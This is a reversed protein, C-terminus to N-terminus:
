NASAGMTMPRLGLDAFLAADESEEPNPTTLLVNGVFISNAGAMFCLAQLEQSMHERGASLRVMAKPCVIRAVAIMRVFEIPGVSESQGLPTGAVPMLDNIPLSDPHHPLTALAHLLGARDRRTEGMSVIGGCCTNMGAAKVHALTDLRDQYTRTTVVKGYYEPGTDLNHNYYDLGAEKLAVAQHPELMGLTVCTEMGMAKVGSIMASVKPLDRDKLNRWAAGMCFRQAGNAKAQAADALVRQVEMLKSADVGTDFSASQSCYGCNEACGGTKVSLLQSIQVEAPDFWRRHTEAARFVLETFPLEFLAEVEELTWDHRPTSFDRPAPSDFPM